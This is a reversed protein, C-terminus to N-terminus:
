FFENVISMIADANWKAEGSRLPSPGFEVTISVGNPGQISRSWIAGTGSYIGGVIQLLPLHALEAYRARIEGARGVGPAIRFYDQHYWIIIQPKIFNGLRVMSQVEPESAASTGAYQWNGPLENPSWRIPFNRNLDVGNANQRTRDIQGDPNMSPVLWLDIKPNLDMTRLLDIVAIGADEDGHTVGVVLVPIGNPAGRRYVMLPADRVSRGFVFDKDFPVEGRTLFTSIHIAPQIEPTQTIAVPLSTVSSTAAPGNDALVILLSAVLMIVVVAVKAFIQMRQRRVTAVPRHTEFLPERVARQSVPIQTAVTLDLSEFPVQTAPPVDLTFKTPSVIQGAVEDTFAARRGSKKTDIHWVRGVSDTYTLNLIRARAEAASIEGNEFAVCTQQYTQDLRALEASARPTSDTRPVDHIYKTSPNTQDAIEDTFAASRGSKKTDVRWIRGELDKFTLNLIRVRAETASIEGGEFAACTQQYLLDLQVLEPHLTDPIM